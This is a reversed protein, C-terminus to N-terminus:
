RFIFSLAASAHREDMHIFCMEMDRVLILFRQCINSNESFRKVDRSM